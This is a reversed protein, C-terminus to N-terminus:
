VTSWSRAGASIRPRTNAACTTSAFATPIRGSITAPETASIKPTLGTSMAMASVIPAIAPKLM